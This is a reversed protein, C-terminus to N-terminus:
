NLCAVAVSNWDDGTTAQFCRDTWCTVRSALASPLIALPLPAESTCTPTELRFLLVVLVYSVIFLPSYPLRLRSFGLLWWVWWWRGTILPRRRQSDDVGYLFFCISNPQYVTFCQWSLEMAVIWVSLVACSGIGVSHLVLLELCRSRVLIGEICCLELGGLELRWRYRVRDLACLWELRVGFLLSSWAFEIPSVGETNGAKDKM